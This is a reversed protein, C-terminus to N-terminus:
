DDTQINGGRGVSLFASSDFSAPFVRSRAAPLPEDFSLIKDASKVPREGTIREHAQKVVAPLQTL